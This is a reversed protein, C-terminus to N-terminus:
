GMARTCQICLEIARRGTALDSLPPGTGLIEDIFTAADKAISADTDPKIVQQEGGKDITVRLGDQRDFGCSGDTTIITGMYGPVDTFGMGFEITGVLGSDYRMTVVASVKGERETGHADISAPQGFLDIFQDIFHIHLACFIDGRRDPDVYWKGGGYYRYYAARPEGLDGLAEKLAVHHTEARVTLGHHLIVGKADALAVLEDYQDLDDVLPYEVHVHKGASLASKVQEYHDANSTSIVVADVDDSAFVSAADTTLPISTDGVVDRLRAEDRACALVVRSRQDASYQSVRQAGMGGSAGIVAVRVQEAM